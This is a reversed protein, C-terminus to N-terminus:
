DIYCGSADCRAREATGTDFVAYRFHELWWLTVRV